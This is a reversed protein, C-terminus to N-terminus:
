RAAPQATTETASKSPQSAKLYRDFWAIALDRAQQRVAPVMYVGYHTIDPITVLNKPGKARQYALVGNDKNDMLEEKAAVVFQMAVNPMRDVYEVPFWAAFQFRVPAGILRQVTNARPPPYGLEGHARATAEKETIAREQSNALTWRGDLSPVQSHLAKVRPDLLAASVVLGGSLSSGWLGIRDTDCQPDGLAWNIANLWDVVMDLPEVVERVEQVEATFHYNQKEAPARKSVLIVRSDSEGWGRYDFAVVLYGAEAFAVAEPRLAAKTGGWGHAMVITPLKKSANAKASYVDGAMRTGESYIDVNRFTVDDLITFPAPPRNGATQALAAACYILTTLFFPLQRFTNM